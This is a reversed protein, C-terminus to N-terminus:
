HFYDNPAKARDLDEFMFRSVMKRKWKLLMGALSVWQWIHRWLVILSHFLHFYSFALCLTQENTEWHCCPSCMICTPKWQAISVHHLPCLGLLTLTHTHKHIHTHIHTHTHTHLPFHPCPVCLCKLTLPDLGFLSLHCCISILRLTHNVSFFHIDLLLTWM